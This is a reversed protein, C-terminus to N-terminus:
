RCVINVARYRAALILSFICHLLCALLTARRVILTTPHIKSYVKAYTAPLDRSLDLIFLAPKEAKVKM